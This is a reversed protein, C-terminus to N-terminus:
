YHDTTLCTVHLVADKHGANYIECLSAAKIKFMGHTTIAFENQQTDLKVSLKDGAAVSCLRTISPDADFKFSMGAKIKLIRFSM